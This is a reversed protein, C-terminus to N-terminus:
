PRPHLLEVTDHGVGLALGGARPLVAAAAPAPSAPSTASLGPSCCPGGGGDGVTPQMLARVRQGPRGALLCLRRCEGLASQPSAQVNDGQRRSLEASDM